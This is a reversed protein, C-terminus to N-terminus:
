LTVDDPVLFLKRYARLAGARFRAPLLRQWVRDYASPSRTYILAAEPVWRNAADLFQRRGIEDAACETDALQLAL